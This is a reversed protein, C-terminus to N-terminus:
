FTEPMLIGFGYRFISALTVVTVLTVIFCRLLPAKWFLRLIWTVMVVSVVEYSSLEFVFLPTPVRLDFNIFAALLVYATIIAMLLLTRRNEEGALFERVARGPANALGAVGVSAGARVAQTGLLLAMMLLTLGTVLPLLGPATFISGPVDLRVSFIMTAISLLAIVVASAFDKNPTSELAEEGSIELPTDSGPEPKGDTAM